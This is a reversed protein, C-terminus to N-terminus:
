VDLIVLPSCRIHVFSLICVHVTRSHSASCLILICINLFYDFLIKITQLILCFTHNIINNTIKRILKNYMVFLLSSMNFVIFFRNLFYKKKSMTIQTHASCMYILIYIFLTLLCYILYKISYIYIYKHAHTHSINYFFSFCLIFSFYYNQFIKTSTIVHIINAFFLFLVTHSYYM